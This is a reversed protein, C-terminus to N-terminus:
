QAFVLISYSRMIGGINAEVSIKTQGKGVLAVNGNADVTAVSTDASTIKFEALNVPVPQDYGNLGGIIVKRAEGVRGYIKDTYFQASWTADDAAQAAADGYFRVECIGLWTTTSGTISVGTLRVYRVAQDGLAFMDHEVGMTSSVSESLTVWNVGDVSGEVKYTYSREGPMFSALAMSHVRKVEGLDYCIWNSVGNASWRNLTNSDHIVNDYTGNMPYKDDTWEISSTAGAIPLHNVTAPLEGNYPSLTLKKLANPDASGVYPNEAFRFTYVKDGVTVTAPNGQVVVAGADASATVTPATSTAAAIDYSYVESDFFTVEKGDVQVRIDLLNILKTITDADFTVPKDSIIILGRDDWFVQKGLAEVLARLPILTRGGIEKAPVDLVVVNGNVNMQNSGLQLTIDNTSTKVSVTQTADEWGVNAGFKEAIFRVPVLTRGNEVIPKIDINATDVYTKAGKAYANPNDVKLAVIDGLTQSTTLAPSGEASWADLPLIPQPAPVGEGEHLPVFEVTLNLKQVNELHIFLKLEDLKNLTEAQVSPNPSTPLPKTSMVDLRAEAPGQTIRVLMQNEGMELLASKGDASLTINALTNTFWYFESPKNAEIEDQIVLTERMDTLMFGRKASVYDANTDTMDIIGFATNAGSEYKVVPAYYDLKMDPKAQQPNAIITNNAEGRAHYYDFHGGTEVHDHYGPWGYVVGSSTGGPERGYMHVWRKGAWDLVFGGADHHMHGTTADGAHAMVVMTDQDTWSGRMTISNNGNPATSAYFKDLDFAPDASAAHEPNYWLLSWVASRDRPHSTAAYNNLLYLNYWAYQPKDYKTSLWYLIPSVSVTIDGDGYNFGGTTGNFYIPFDGTNNMGTINKFDLIEPLSAGEVLCSDLAAMVKVQHRIGYDWYGLTEAYSGNESLEDFCGTLGIAGKRLIYDAVDPYKDAIALAAIMNSGNCVNNWNSLRSVWPTGKEYGEYGLVAESLGKELLWNEINTREEQTWDHWLWDYAVAFGLNMHATCLYADAGWDPWAGAEKLEAYLRDKYRVDGTLKYAASLLVMNNKATTSCENITNRSNRLYATPASTVISNATDLINKKWIKFNEDTDIKAAVAQWDNTFLRPHSMKMVDLMGTKESADLKVKSFDVTGDFRIMGGIDKDATTLKFNDVACWSGDLPVTNYVQFEINDAGGLDAAYEKYLKGGAYVKATKAEFDFRVKIHTWQRFEMPLPVNVVIKNANGKDAIRLATTAATPVSACVDMDAVLSKIGTINFARAMRPSRVTAGEAKPDGHLMVAYQNEDAAKIRIAAVDTIAGTTFGSENATYSYLEDATQGEFDESILTLLDGAEAKDDAANYPADIDDLLIGPNPDYGVQTTSIKVNDFMAWSEEPPASAMLQLILKQETFAAVESEKVLENGSYFAATGNKLDVAIRVPTWETVQRTVTFSLLLNKSEEGLLNAALTTDGGSTKVDMTIDFAALGGVSFVTEVRPGRSQEGPNNPDGHWTKVVKNGDDEVVYMCAINTIISNSFDKPIAGVSDGEFDTSFIVTEPGDMSVPAEKIAFAMPACVGLLMACTLLMCLVKKM